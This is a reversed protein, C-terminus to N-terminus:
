FGQEGRKNSDSTCTQYAMTRHLCTEFADPEPVRDVFGRPMSSGGELSNELARAFEGGWRGVTGHPVRDGQVVENGEM